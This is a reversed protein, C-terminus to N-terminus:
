KTNDFVATLTTENPTNALLHILRIDEFHSQKMISICEQVVEEFKDKRSFINKLTIAIRAHNAIRGGELLKTVFSISVLPHINADCCLFDLSEFSISEQLLREVADQGHMCWYDISAPWPQPISLEGKDVSIVKDVNCSQALFYTWGGPSSGIDIALKYHHLVLSEADDYIWRNRRMIEELKAQARCISSSTATSEDGSEVSTAKKKERTDGIYTNEAEVLCGMWLGDFQCVSLVHSYGHMMWPLQQGAYDKSTINTALSKPNTQLRIGTIESPVNESFAKSILDEMMVDLAAHSSVTVANRVCVPYVRIITSRLVPDEVLKHLIRSELTSEDEASTHLRIGILREQSKMPTTCSEQLTFQLKPFFTSLTSHLTDIAREVAKHTVQLCLSPKSKRLVAESAFIAKKDEHAACLKEAAFNYYGLEKVQWANVVRLQSSRAIISAREQRALYKEANQLRGGSVQVVDGVIIPLPHEEEKEVVVSGFEYHCGDGHSNSPLCYVLDVFLLVKSYAHKRLVRGTVSVVEVDDNPNTLSTLFSLDASSM